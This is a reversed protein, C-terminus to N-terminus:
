HVGQITAIIMEITLIENVREQKQLELWQIASEKGELNEIISSCIEKMENVLM